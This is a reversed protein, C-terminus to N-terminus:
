KARFKSTLRSAMPVQASSGMVHPNPSIAVSECECSPFDAGSLKSLPRGNKRKKVVSVLCPASDVM